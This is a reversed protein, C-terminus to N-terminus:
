ARRATSAPRGKPPDVVVHYYIGDLFRGLLDAMPPQGDGPSDNSSLDGVRRFIPRPDIGQARAALVLEGLLPLLEPGREADDEVSLALLARTLDRVSGEATLRAAARRACRRLLPFRVDERFAARIEARADDGADAYVDLTRRLALLGRRVAGIRRARGQPTRPSLRRRLLVDLTRLDTRWVATTEHSKTRPEV